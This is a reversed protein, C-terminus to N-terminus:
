NKYEDEPRKHMELLEEVSYYEFIRDDQLNVSLIGTDPQIEPFKRFSERCDGCPHLTKTVLGSKDDPQVNAVIAMVIILKYGAARAFNVSVQEACIKPNGQGIKTNAGCFVKHVDGYYYANPNFAYLACGVPFVRYSFSSQLAVKRAQDALFWLFGDNILHWHEQINLGLKRRSEVFEPNVKYM